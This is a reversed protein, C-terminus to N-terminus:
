NFMLVYANLSTAIFLWIWYPSILVNRKGQLKWYNVQFYLVVLTLIIIVVMAAEIFHLKFFLPNWLVNLAFQIGYEALLRKKNRVLEWLTAMYFSYAVMISTWAAGFVWGPPTWPAKELGLYWFSSPGEGMLIGGIALASFNAILFIITRLLMHNQFQNERKRM